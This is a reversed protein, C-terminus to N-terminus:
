SEKIRKIDANRKELSKDASTHGTSTMKFRLAKLYTEARDKEALEERSLGPKSKM